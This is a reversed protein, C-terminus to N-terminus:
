HTAINEAMLQAVTREDRDASDKLAQIVGHQDPLNRNQSMKAKGEIRTLTMEFGVLGGTLKVYREDAWPVSWPQPRSSEYVAM